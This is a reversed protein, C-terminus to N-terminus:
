ASDHQEFPIKSTLRPPDDSISLCVQLLADLDDRVMVTGDEESVLGEVDGAHYMAM